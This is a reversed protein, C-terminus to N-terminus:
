PCDLKLRGYYRGQGDVVVPPNSAFPNCASYNSFKSGYPSFENRISTQSFSSGNPGFQNQVSDRAFESCNLCGLYVQHGPGGFIMLKPAVAPAPHMQGNLVAAYPAMGQVGGCGTLVILLSLSSLAKTHLM